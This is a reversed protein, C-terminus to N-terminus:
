RASQLASDAARTASSAQNAFNRQIQGFQPLLQGYNPLTISALVILIAIVAVAELLSFGQALHSRSHQQKLWRRHYRISM